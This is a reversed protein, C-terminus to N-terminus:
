TWAARSSRTPTLPAGQGAAAPEQGRAGASPRGLPITVHVTGDLSRVLATLGCRRVTRLVAPNDPQTTALLATKQLGAAHRAAAHMLASGIGQRQWGDEVLLGVEMVDDECPAIVVMGVVEDGVAAVYSAGGAPEVLQQELRKPLGNTPAHYRRALTETSCRAHMRRVAPADSSAAPRVSWGVGPPGVPHVGRVYGDATSRALAWRALETLAAARAREADTFPALRRVEATSGALEVQLVDADEDASADAALLEALADGLADPTDLVQLALRLSKTPLDVLDRESCRGVAVLDGGSATVLAAVDEADWHGPVSLLLEDTVRGLHPFIQLSLVNVRSEGCRAALAALAGPRDALTTRVRWLM